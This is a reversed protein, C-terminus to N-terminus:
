IKWFEVLQSKMQVPLNAETFSLLKDFTRKKWDILGFILLKAFYALINQSIKCGPPSINILLNDIERETGKESRWFELIFFIALNINNM